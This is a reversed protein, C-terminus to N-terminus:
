HSHLVRYLQNKYESENISNILEQFKKVSIYGMRYAAEDPSGILLGQRIQIARVFQAAELLNEITGADLWFVGRSLNQSSLKQNSLYRNLLETVEHEGRESATTQGVTSKLSAPFYYLGTIALNGHGSKPKEVISEIRGDSAMNAIGFDQPNGVAQTWIICSEGKALESIHRGLGLGYFINDGLIVLQSRSGTFSGLGIEIGDAIGIAHEQIAYKISIGWQSGDGILAKFQAVGSATSVLCIERVGALMLTSLPYYIMPKDYIPLLHKNVAQTTPSLRTGRGGALLIGRM